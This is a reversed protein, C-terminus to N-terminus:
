QNNERKVKAIRENARKSYIKEIEFGIFDCRELVAAEGTSGCGAFTDLIIPDKGAFIRILHRLLDVPKATLHGYRERPKPTDMITSPFSDCDIFPNKVDILGVGWKRWNDVFTGEKPVQGLIITEGMPRLQPTKRGGLDAIIKKKESETLDKRKAIFHDQSFAKAQGARKWILVDRIEVGANEMAMAAAHSLRPQMFCLIFGGPKVVRVWEKAVPELFNLLNKSQNKDFKMGVPLGGVVDAKATKNNLNGDNWDDGMGDIFYPPDTIVCSISNDALTALGKRCDITIVEQSLQYDMLAQTM